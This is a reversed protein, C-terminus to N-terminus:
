LVLAAERISSGSFSTQIAQSPRFASRTPPMRAPFTLGRGPSALGVSNSQLTWGSHDAPWNFQMQGGAFAFGLTPPSQSVARVGAPSSNASEGFDNTGSVAYYYLTGNVLGTNTFIRSNWNTAVTAYPGGTTTGRKLFYNTAGNDVSWRFTVPGNGPDAVIGTPPNLNAAIYIIQLANVGAPKLTKLKGIGPRVVESENSQECEM